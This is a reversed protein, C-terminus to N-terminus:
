FLNVSSTEAHGLAHGLEGVQGSAVLREDLALTQELVQVESIAQALLQSCRDQFQLQLIVEHSRERTAQAATETRLLADLTNRHAAAFSENLQGLRQRLNGLQTDTNEALDSTARQLRPLTSALSTALRTVVENSSRVDRALDRIANAIVVFGKGQDGLRASELRANFTLLRASQAIQDVSRALTIIDTAWGVAGQVENRHHALSDRLSRGLHEVEGDLAKLTDALGGSGSDFSQVVQNMELSQQKSNNLLSNLGAGIDLVAAESTSRVTQISHIAEVRVEDGREILLCHAGGAVEIREANAPAGTVVGSVCIPEFLLPRGVDQAMAEFTAAVANLAAASALEDGENV